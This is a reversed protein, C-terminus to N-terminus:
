RAGALRILAAALVDAGQRGRHVFGALGRGTTRHTMDVPIEEVRFGLRVADITMATELGFGPALPRCADLAESTIARQGSLPEAAVFGCAARILRAAARKVLGFGGGALAPLRGVALDARGSRVAALLFAGESATAGVDGDILLYLDAPAVRGLAEEVARGKGLRRPAALVRAGASAAVAPTRDGCGDAVVVVEDVGDVARLAAVTRAITDEEDHAPVVALVRPGPARTV